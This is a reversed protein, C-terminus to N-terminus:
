EYMGSGTHAFLFTNEFLFYSYNFKRENQQGETVM